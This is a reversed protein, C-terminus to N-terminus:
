KKNKDLKIYNNIEENDIINRNNRKILNSLKPLKLSIYISRNM